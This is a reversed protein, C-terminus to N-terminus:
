TNILGPTRTDAFLGPLQPARNDTPGAMDILGRTSDTSNYGRLALNIDGHEAAPRDTPPGVVPLTGYNQGDIAACPDVQPKPPEPAPEPVSPQPASPAVPEPAPAPAAPEPTSVPASPAPAAPQPIAPAQSAGDPLPLILVQGVWIKNADAINNAKQILPYKKADGYINKAIQSLTDGHQVTYSTLGFDGEGQAYRAVLEAIITELTKGEAQARALASQRITDDLEINLNRLPM